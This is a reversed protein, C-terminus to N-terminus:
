WVREWVNGGFQEEQALAADLKEGIKNYINDAQTVLVDQIYDQWADIVKHAYLAYRQRLRALALQYGIEFDFRDNASCKSKARLQDPVLKYALFEVMEECIARNLKLEAYSTHGKTKLLNHLYNTMDDQVNNLVLVTTGKEVNMYIDINSRKM